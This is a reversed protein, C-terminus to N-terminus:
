PKYCEGKRISPIFNKDKGLCDVPLADLLVISGFPNTCMIEVQISTFEFRICQLTLLWPTHYRLM